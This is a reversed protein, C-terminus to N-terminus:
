LQAQWQALPLTPTVLARTFHDRVSYTTIILSSASIQSSAIPYKVLGTTDRVPVDIGFFSL